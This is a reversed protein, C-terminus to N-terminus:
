FFLERRSGGERPLFAHNPTIWLFRYCVKKHARMHRIHNLFVRIPNLYLARNLVGLKIRGIASAIGYKGM